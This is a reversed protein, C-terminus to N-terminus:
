VMVIEQADPFVSADDDNCDVDSSYGDGDVDLILPNTPEKEGCGLWLLLAIM